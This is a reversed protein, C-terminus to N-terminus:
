QETLMWSRVKQPTIDYQVVDQLGQRIRKESVTNLDSKELISDIIATYKARVEAPVATM